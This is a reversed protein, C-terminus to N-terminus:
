KLLSPDVLQAAEEDLIVTFNSHLKLVSAPFENTVESEFFRKTAEAKNKGSIMLVIREVKQISLPGMSYAYEPVNEGLIDVFTQYWPYEQSVNFRFTKSALPTSYPMNGCFHGDNGLGLLMVDLGGLEEIMEDYIQYNEEDIAHLRSQDVDIKSYILEDMAKKVYNQDEKGGVVIEDFNFFNTKELYAPNENVKDAIIEYTRKPSSGGTLSVNVQKDQSLTSLIINAAEESVEEYNRKKIIKM